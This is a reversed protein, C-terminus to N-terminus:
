LHLNIFSLVPISHESLNYRFSWNRLSHTAAKNPTEYSLAPTVFINEFTFTELHVIVLFHICFLVYFFFGLKRSTSVWM